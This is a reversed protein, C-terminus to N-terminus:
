LNAYYGMAKVGQVGQVGMQPGVVIWDPQGSGTRYPFLRVAKEMGKQDTGCISLLLRSRPLPHLYIAGTEEGSYRHADITDNVVIAQNEARIPFHEVGFDQVVKRLYTNQDEMGLSIVNGSLGLDDVEDDFRIDVEAGFYIFVNQAINTALRKFDLAGTNKTGIVITLPGPTDM